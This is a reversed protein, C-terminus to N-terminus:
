DDIIGYYDINNFKEEREKIDDEEEEKEKNINNFKEKNNGNAKKYSNNIIENKKESNNIKNSQTNQNDKDMSIMVKNLSDLLQNADNFNNNLNVNDYNEPIIINKGFKNQIEKAKFEIIKKKLILNEIMLKNKKDLSYSNYKIPNNNNKSNENEKKKIIYKKETNKYDSLNNNYRSNNTKSKQMKVSSNNNNINPSNNTNIIQNKDKENKETINTEIDQNNKNKKENLINTLTEYSIKEKNEDIYQKKIEEPFKLNYFSSDIYKLYNNFEIETYINKKFQNYLHRINKAMKLVIRYKINEDYGPNGRLDVNLLTLNRRMMYIFITCENRKFKNNKLTISRIYQDSALSKTIAEAAYKSLNNGNLNLSILGLKYNNHPKENRIGCLWITLDRRYTQRSIIRAIINGYNDGFNNNSLNLYEIKEHNFLSKFLTEYDELSIECKNVNLKKISNNANLGNSLSQALKQDIKIESITINEITRSLSLHKGIGMIIKNVMNIHEVEKVKEEKEMKNKEGETIPERENRIRKVNQTKKQPDTQSLIISKFYNYKKLIRNMVSIDNFNYCSLFINLIETKLQSLLLPNPSAVYTEYFKKTDEIALPMEKNKYINTVNKSRASKTRSKIKNGTSM